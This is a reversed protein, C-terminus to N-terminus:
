KGHKVRMSSIYSLIEHCRPTLQAKQWCFRMIEEINEPTLQPTGHCGKITIISKWPHKIGQYLQKAHSYPILEDEISHIILTPVMITKIRALNSEGQLLIFPYAAKILLSNASKALSPLDVFAALLLLRHCPYKSAIHTAVISGLSEGWVIIQEPQYGLERIYNYAAEGDQKLSDLTTRGGSLGYGQYDFLFLSLKMEHCLDVVYRRYSINGSNGHCFLIIPTRIQDSDISIFWGHLYPGNPSSPFFVDRCPLDPTWTHEKIPFFLCKEELLLFTQYFVLLVTVILGLCILWLM